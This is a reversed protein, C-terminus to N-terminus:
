EEGICYGDESGAGACTHYASVSYIQILRLLESLDIRWDQPRYDGSHPPCDVAGPAPAYGDETASDCHFVGMNYFQVVRLLEIMNVM